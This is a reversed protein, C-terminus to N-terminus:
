ISCGNCRSDESLGCFSDCFMTRSSLKWAAESVPRVQPGPQSSRGVLSVTLGPDPPAAPWLSPGSGGLRHAPHGQCWPGPLAAGAPSENLTGVLKDPVGPQSTFLVSEEQTVLGYVAWFQTWPALPCGVSAVFAFRRSTAPRPWTSFSATRSAKATSSSSLSTLGTISPSLNRVSPLGPRIYNAPCLKGDYRWDDSLGHRSRDVASASPTTPAPPLPRQRAQCQDITTRAATLLAHHRRRPILSYDDGFSNDELLM